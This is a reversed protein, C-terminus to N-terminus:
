FWVSLFPACIAVIGVGLVLLCRRAVFHMVAWRIDCFHFPENSSNDSHIHPGRHNVEGPKIVKGCPLYKAVLVINQSLSSHLSKPFLGQTYQACNSDDSDRGYFYAYRRTNSLQRHVLLPLDSLKLNQKFKAYVQTVCPAVLISRALSGHQLISFFFFVISEGAFIIKAM